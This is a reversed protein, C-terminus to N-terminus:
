VIGTKRGFKQFYGRQFNRKKGNLSLGIDEKEGPIPLRTNILDYCPSLMLRGEGGPSELLTWNKLHMDANGIFYCFVVRQYFKTLDVKPALSFKAISQAVKECSSNYKNESYKNNIQCLDEMRLAKGELRDFRKVAFVFGIEDFDLIFFPPVDFGIKKAIAM